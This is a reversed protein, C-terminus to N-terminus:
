MEQPPSLHVYGDHNPLQSWFAPLTSSVTDICALHLYYESYWYVRIFSYFIQRILVSLIQPPPPKTTSPLFYTSTGIHLSPVTRNHFWRIDLLNPERFTEFKRVGPRGNNPERQV